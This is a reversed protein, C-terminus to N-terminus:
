SVIKYYKVNTPTVSVSVPKLMRLTNATPAFPGCTLQTGGGAAHQISWGGGEFIGDFIPSNFQRNRTLVIDGGYRTFSGSVSYTDWSNTSFNFEVINKTNVDTNPINMKVIDAEDADCPILYTKTDFGVQKELKTISINGGYVDNRAWANTGAAVGSIRFIDEPKFVVGTEDVMPATTCGLAAYELTYTGGSAVVAGAGYFKAPLTKAVGNVDLSFTAEVLFMGAGVMDSTALTSFDTQTKDNFRYVRKELTTVRGAVTNVEDGLETVSDKVDSIEGTIKNIDETNTKLQIDAQNLKFDRAMDFRVIGENAEYTDRILEKSIIAQKQDNMVSQRNVIVDDVRNVDAGDAIGALKTKEVDTFANTNPNEEYWQKIDEPTITITAVRTGDDLVTKGNFMVNIVKNVEAGNEIGALKKVAEDTYNNDTHVYDGDQVYDNGPLYKELFAQVDSEQFYGLFKVVADIMDATVVIKGNEVKQLQGNWIMGDVLGHAVIYDILEARLKFIMQEIETIRPIALAKAAESELAKKIEDQTALTTAEFRKKASSQANRILEVNDWSMAM